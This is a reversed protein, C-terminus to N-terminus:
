FGDQSYIYNNIQAPSMNYNLHNMIWISGIVVIFVLGITSLLVVLNWRPGREQGLHLFFILQIIFQTMALGVIVLLLDSSPLLHLSIAGFSCVTLIISIVFGTVYAKLARNM